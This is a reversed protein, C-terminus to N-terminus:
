MREKIGRRVLWWNVPYSTVFGALMAVQMMFWFVPDSKPLEHGVLAFVVIAMWGYMGIQWATLSLSDAKLAAILGARLGLQKMPAITFYQFAIGFAFAFAYDLLWTGFIRQGLITIPLVVVLNEAVLDGLTCGAGCHSTALGVMQWMPKRKGPPEEGRQEAAAVAARTSLRGVTFYAWVAIPGAYLANIPWVVNMIGMHQRHGALLDVVIVLASLVALVLSVLAVSHLWDPM